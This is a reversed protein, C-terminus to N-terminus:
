AARLRTRLVAAEDLGFGRDALWQEAGGYRVEVQELFADMTEPRPTQEGAPQGDIAPSYAGAARLRALIADIRDASAAYDAVVAHRQTGAVSLALATVVGTRDKGAACHVLAAGPSRAISRVAETVEAPREELYGLYLGCRTDAPYRAAARQMRAALIAADGGAAVVGPDRAVAVSEPLLSFNAYRVSPVATLPGPGAAAIENPSRLDIVTALGLGSVLHTVDAPSLNDLNDSRLLRGAAIQGGDTTPLGGLDRLNVTGDLEIWAM